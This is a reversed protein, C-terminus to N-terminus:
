PGPNLGGGGIVVKHFTPIENDHLLASNETKLAKRREEEKRDKKRGREPVLEQVQAM